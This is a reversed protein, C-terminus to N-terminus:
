EEDYEARGGDEGKENVTDEKEDDYADNYEYCHCTGDDNKTTEVIAMRYPM